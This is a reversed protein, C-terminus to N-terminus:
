LVQQQEGVLVQRQVALNLELFSDVLSIEQGSDLRGLEQEKFFDAQRELRASFARSIEQRWQGSHNSPLPVQQVPLLVQRM